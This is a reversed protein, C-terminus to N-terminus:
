SDQVPSLSLGFSATPKSALSDVRVYRMFDAQSLCPLLLQLILSGARGVRSPSVQSPFWGFRWLNWTYLRALGYAQSRVPMWGKPTPALYM